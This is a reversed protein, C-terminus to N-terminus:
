KQPLYLQSLTSGHQWRFVGLHRQDIEGRLLPMSTPATISPEAASANQLPGQNSCAWQALTKPSIGLYAAADRRSMRGDPLERVRVKEVKETTADQM